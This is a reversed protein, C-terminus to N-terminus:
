DFVTAIRMPFHLTTLEYQSCRWIRSEIDTGKKQLRLEQVGLVTFMIPGSASVILSIDFSFLTLFCSNPVILTVPNTVENAGRTKRSIICSCIFWVSNIATLMETTLWQFTAYPYPLGVSFAPLTHSMMSRTTGNQGHCWKYFGIIASVALVHLFVTAYRVPYYSLTNHTWLTHPFQFVFGLLWSFRM